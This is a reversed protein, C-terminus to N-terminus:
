EDERRAKDDGEEFLERELEVLARFEATEMIPEVEMDITDAVDEADALEDGSDKNDALAQNRGQMSVNGTHAEIHLAENM